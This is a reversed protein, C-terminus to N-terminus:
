FKYTLQMAMESPNKTSKGDLSTADGAWLHALMVDLKLEDTIEYGVKLDLEVGLDTNGFGDQEELEAVWGDLSLSLKETPNITVGLNYAVLNSISDGPSGHSSQNGFMGLGMIEAWPHSNGCTPIMQSLKSDKQGAPDDISTPEGTSYLFEGHIDFFSTPKIKGGLGISFGDFDSTEGIQDSDFIGAFVLGKTNESDSLRADGLQKVCAFWFDFKEREFNIDIGVQHMDMKDLLGPFYMFEIEGAAKDRARAYSWFVTIFDTRSLRIGPKFTFIDLPANDRTPGVGFGDGRKYNLAFSLFKKAKMGGLVSFAGEQDSMLGNALKSHRWGAKVMYDGRKFRPNYEVSLNM